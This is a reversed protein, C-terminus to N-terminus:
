NMAFSFSHQMGCEVGRGGRLLLAFVPVVPQPFKDALGLPRQSLAVLKLGEMFAVCLAKFFDRMKVAARQM